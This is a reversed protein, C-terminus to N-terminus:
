KEDLVNGEQNTCNNASLLMSESIGATNNKVCVRDCNQLVIACATNSLVKEYQEPDTKEIRNETVTVGDTASVFVSSASNHAFENETITIDQHVGCPYAAHGTGHSAKVIIVGLNDEIPAVACKEMRNNRIVINKAPGVEYWYAIDPAILIAALSIGYFTCNEVLVNRSQLLFGRARSNKVTCHDIHVSAYFEANALVDGKQVEGELVSYSINGNQYSDVVLTGKKRFNGPDYVELVAGAEAWCEYLGEYCYGSVCRVVHAAEDFETVIAARSHINLADDGLHEFYCDKMSLSGSLGKIHIGDANSSMLRKCGKPLRICFRLFSFDACHPLLRVVSGPAGYINVDEMHVSRCNEFIFYEKGYVTHRICVKQGIMLRALQAAPNETLKIRINGNALVDYSNEQYCFLRYDPTGEEDFSNQAMVRERGTMSFGPDPRFEYTGGELDKAVVTGTCNAPCDTTVDFGMLKLNECNSFHFLGPTQGNGMDPEYHSVFMTGEEGCITLNKKGQIAFQRKMPYTGAEFLITSGDGAEKFLKELQEERCEEDNPLIGYARAKIIELTM